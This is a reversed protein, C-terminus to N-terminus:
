KFPNDQEEESSLPHFVGLLDERNNKEATDQEYQEEASLLLEPYKDELRKVLNDRSIRGDEKQVARLQKIIEPSGVNHVASANKERLKDLARFLKKKQMDSPFEDVIDKLKRSSPPTAAERKIEKAHTSVPTKKKRRPKAKEKGEYLTDMTRLHERTGATTGTKSRLFDSAREIENKIAVKTDKGKISFDGGSKKIHQYAPSWESYGSSELRRLRKNAASNLRSSLQKLDRESLKNIEKWDMDIIDNISMGKIDM